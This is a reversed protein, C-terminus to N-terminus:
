KRPLHGAAEKIWKRVTDEDLTLGLGAIDRAIESTASNKKASPDYKYGAVAMGIVLKLLSDKERSSLSDKNALGQETATLMKIRVAQVQDVIRPDVSTKESLMAALVRNVRSSKLDCLECTELLTYRLEPLIDEIWDLIAYDAYLTPFEPYQENKVEQASHLGHAILWGQDLDEFQRVDITTEDANVRGDIDRSIVALKLSGREIEDLLMKLVRPATVRIGQRTAHAALVSVADSLSVEFLGAIEGAM